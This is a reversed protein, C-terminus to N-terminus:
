DDIEEQCDWKQGKKICGYENGKKEEDYPVDELDYL